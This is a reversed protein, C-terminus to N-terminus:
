DVREEGSRKSFTLRSGQGYEPDGLCPWYIGDTDLRTYEVITATDSLCIEILQCVSIYVLIRFTLKPHLTVPFVFFFEWYAFM